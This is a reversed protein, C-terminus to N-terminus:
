IGETCELPRPKGPVAVQQPFRQQLLGCAKRAAASMSTAGEGTAAASTPTPTSRDVADVAVHVFSLFSGALLLWVALGM